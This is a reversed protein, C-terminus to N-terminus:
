QQPKPPEFQINQILRVVQGSSDRYGSVNTIADIVYRYHLNFDASIRAEATARLSNPGTDQGVFDKVDALLGAFAQRASNRDGAPSVRMTRSPTTVQELNGAQDAVLRVQFPPILVKSEQTPAMKPMKINFDGEQTTIKFTFLFYILLQFVIDIMPTMQMEVKSEGGARKIKM